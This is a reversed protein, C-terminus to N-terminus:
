KTLINNIQVLYIFNLTHIKRELLNLNRLTQGVHESNAHDQSHKPVYNMQMLQINLLEEKFCTIFRVIQFNEFNRWELITQGSAPM